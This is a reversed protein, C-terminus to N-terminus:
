WFINLEHWLNNLFKGFNIIRFHRKRKIRNKWFRFFINCTTMYNRMTGQHLFTLFIFCQLKGEKHLFIIYYFYTILWQLISIVIRKWTRMEITFVWCGDVVILTKETHFCVQWWHLFNCYIFLRAFNQIYFSWTQLRM